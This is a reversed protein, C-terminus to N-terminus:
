PLAGGGRLARRLLAAYAAKTLPPTMAAALEALTMEPHDVRHRLVQIWRLVHEPPQPQATLTTLASHARIVQGRSARAARDRNAASAVHAWKPNNAM